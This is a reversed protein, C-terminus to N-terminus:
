AAARIIFGDDDSVREKEEELTEETITPLPAKVHVHGREIDRQLADLRSVNGGSSGSNGDKKMM